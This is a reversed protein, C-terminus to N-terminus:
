PNLIIQSGMAHFGWCRLIQKFKWVCGIFDRISYLTWLLTQESEFFNFNLNSFYGHTSSFVLDFEKKFVYVKPSDYASFKNKTVVDCFRVWLSHDSYLTEIIIVFFNNSEFWLILLHSAWYRSVMYENTLIWIMLIEKQVCTRNMHCVMNRLLKVIYKNFNHCKCRFKKWIIMMDFSFVSSCLSHINCVSQLISDQHEVHQYFILHSFIHIL